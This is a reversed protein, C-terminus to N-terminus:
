KVVLPPYDKLEGQLTKALFRAQQEFCRAYSTQQKLVPHAFDQRKRREYQELFKQLGDETLLTVKGMEERFDDSKLIQKNICNLVLSDIFIPRFEEMLDLALSPRGYRDAHLYGIYPDFGVINVASYIENMVAGILYAGLGSHNPTWSVDGQYGLDLGFEAIHTPINNADGFPDNGGDESWDNAGQYGEYTGTVFRADSYLRGEAVGSWAYGNDDPEVNGNLDGAHNTLALGFIDGSKANHSGGVNVYLDGPTLWGQYSSNKGSEPFDTLINVYLNQEDYAYGMRYVECLAGIADNAPDAQYTWNLAMSSGPLALLAAIALGILNLHTTHKSTEM